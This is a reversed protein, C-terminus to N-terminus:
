EVVFKKTGILRNDVTLVDVRWKGPFVDKTSFGRYGDDRGGSISYKISGANVWKNVAEDYYSWQNIIETNLRTPAYISSFLYANNGSYLKFRDLYFPIYDKWSKDQKGFVYNGNIDKEVFHYVGIEKLSLPVPPIWNKFYALNFIGYVIFIALFIGFKRRVLIKKGAHLIILIFILIALIAM